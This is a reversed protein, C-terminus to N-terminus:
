ESYMIYYTYEINAAFGYSTNAILVSFKKSNRFLLSQTAGSPDVSNGYTIVANPSFTRTYSTASTANNKYAACTSFQDGFGKTNYTPTSSAYTKYAALYGIAYRQILNYYDRNGYMGGTPIVFIMIPYGNGSYPIDINVIEGKTTGTFTGTVFNSAGGSGSVNVLATAYGIVDYTGNETITLSPTTIHITGANTGDLSINIDVDPLEWNYTSSGGSSSSAVVVSDITISSINSRGASTDIYLNDGAEFEFSGSSSYNIGNYKVYQMDYAGSGTITATHKAGGSTPVDVSATAYSSVDIGTGNETIALNGTPVVYQSPIANVTVQSFGDKGTSPTLTQQSETPTVTTTELSPQVNVNVESIQKNEPYYTGNSTVNLIETRSSPYIGTITGDSNYQIDYLPAVNSIFMTYLLYTGGDVTLTASFTHEGEDTLASMSYMNVISRCETYTKDCTVSVINEYNSDWVVNFVPIDVGGGTEIANIASVYEDPFHLQASTGGKTRIANAVTTLDADLAVSDVFKDYAM